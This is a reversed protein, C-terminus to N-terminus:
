GAPAAGAPQWGALYAGAAVEDLLDTRRPSWGLERETLKGDPRCSSGLVVRANFKGYGEEAEPLNWSAAPRSVSAAVARALDGMTVEGAVAHYVAGPRGQKLARLFMEALDDIHIVGWRNEGAGVYRVVGTKAACAMMLTIKTNAGDGFVLPPRVVIGRVDRAASLRVIEESPARIAAARPPNLPSDEPFRRDSDGGGTEEAILSAGSTFILPKHTGALADVLGALAAGEEPVYRAAYIVGDSEAAAHKSAELDSVSGRVPRAGIAGLVEDSAATRSMGLVEYGHAVLARVIHSGIYGSGGILYIRQM